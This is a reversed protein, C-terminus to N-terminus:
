LVIRTGFKFDIGKTGNLIDVEGVGKSIANKASQVKPIMGGKIVGKQILVPIHRVSLKPIRRGEKDLVGNTDTLFILNKAKLAVALASAFDDANINVPHGKFDSAVSSLVPMHGSKLLDRVLQPSVKIPKAARGLGPIPKGKVLGGDRGSLGVASIGKQNLEGVLSKNVEGSLTKEVVRMGAQSTVRRGGKFRVPIKNKTLDKEIQPGGGHVFLVPGKKAKLILGRLIAKRIKPDALLEGGTKIICPKQTM